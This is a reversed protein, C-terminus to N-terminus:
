SFVGGASQMDGNDELADFVSQDDDSIDVGNDVPQVTQQPPHAGGNTYRGPSHGDNYSFWGGDDLDEFNPDISRQAVQQQVQQQQVQRAAPVDASADSVMWGLNPVYTQLLTQIAAVGAGIIIPEQYRRTLDLKHGVLWAAAFSGVSALAGAHKAVKPWKKAIATTAMRTAFRTAIFAAGGPVVLELLDSAMFAEASQTTLPAEDPNRRFSRKYRKVIKKKPM